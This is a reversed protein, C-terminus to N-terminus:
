KPKMMDPHAKMMDTCTKDKQMADKAMSRCMTMTKMDMDSMGKSM